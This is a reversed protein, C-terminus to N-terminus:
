APIVVPAADPRPSLRRGALAGVCGLTLFLETALTAWAAGEISAAPILAANLGVNVALAAACLGAYARQRHWGVLQYTLAYNLSMLPFSLTLVRFAPVAAAYPRGYVLPIITGATLWLAASVLSAFLTAGGAVRGLPRLDRARCLSPLVVALLAAPFLRLAEILRFVANYMAVAEAGRWWGVLFVDIRFYLASLVIGAGIPFVDTRFQTPLPRPVASPEVRREAPGALRRAIPVGIGLAAAMPVLMAIALLSVDPRWALVALGLVLTGTRQAVTLSVEVDSRSLGRYFYHLFEVLASCGYVIAFLLIPLAVAAPTRSAILALMVVGIAAGTTWLRVRLWARLTAAAEEPARAVTRAVHMQIGFDSAVAILWGLTSAISFVGFAPPPLRRAAAVTIVFVVCKGALDALAKAGVLLANRSKPNRFSREDM